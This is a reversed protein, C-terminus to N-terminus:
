KLGVEEFLRLEMNEFDISPKYEKGGVGGVLVTVDGEFKYDWEVINYVGNFSMISSLEDVLANYDQRRLIDAHKQPDIKLTYKCM